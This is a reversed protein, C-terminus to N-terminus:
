NNLLFEIEGNIEDQVKGLYKNTIQQRYSKWLGFFPKYFWGATRYRDKRFSGRYSKMAGAIRRAQRNQDPVQGKDYGPVYKFNQLGVQKVWDTLVDIPARKAFYRKQELVTGAIDFFVLLENRALKENNSLILKVSQQTKGSRVAGVKKLNNLVLRRAQTKFEELNDTVMQQIDKELQLM